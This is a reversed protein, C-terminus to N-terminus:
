TFRSLFRGYLPFIGELVTLFKLQFGVTNKQYQMKM